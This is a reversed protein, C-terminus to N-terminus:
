NALRDIKRSHKLVIKYIRILEITVLFMSRIRLKGKSIETWSNLPEEYIRLVKNSSKQFEGRLLIEVDFFWRTTFEEVFLSKLNEDLEFIKLGCQSDYPLDKIALGLITHIIRGVYHRFKSRDIKRGLLNVRSAWVANISKEQLPPADSIIRKATRIFKAVDDVEIASDSDLFGILRRPTQQSEDKKSSVQFLYNFGIRVSEAKGFNRASSIIHVNKHEALKEIFKGTEDTSGDNIFLWYTDPLKVMLNWYDMNIRHSENYLPVVIQVGVFKPKLSENM